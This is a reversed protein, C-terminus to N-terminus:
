YIFTLKDLGYRSGRQQCQEVFVTQCMKNILGKQQDSTYKTWGSAM